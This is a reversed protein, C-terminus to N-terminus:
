LSIEAMSKLRVSGDRVVLAGGTGRIGLEPWGILAAVGDTIDPRFLAKADNGLVEFPLTPLIM